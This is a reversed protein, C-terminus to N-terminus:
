VSHKLSCKLLYTEARHLQSAARTQQCLNRKGPASTCCQTHTLICRPRCMAPSAAPTIQSCIQGETCRSNSMFCHTQRDETTDDHLSDAQQRRDQLQAKSRQAAPERERKRTPNVTKSRPVHGGVLWGCKHARLQGCMTGAQLPCAPIHQAAPQAGCRPAPMRGATKTAAAESHGQARSLLGTQVKGDGAQTQVAGRVTVSGTPLGRGHM